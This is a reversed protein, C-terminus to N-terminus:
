LVYVNGDNDTYIAGDNAALPKVFGLEALLEVADGDDKNCGIHVPAPNELGGDNSWSLVCDESVSPTFTAGDKGDKGDKGDVGNTGGTVSVKIRVNPTGISGVRVIDSM